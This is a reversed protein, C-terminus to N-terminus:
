ESSKKAEEWFIDLEEPTLERVTRAQDKVRSEVFRFRQVFKRNAKRLSEEPDIKLWRGVSVLVFFLDGLEEVLREHVERSGVAERLETLEEQVKDLLSGVDPWEFGQNAARKQVAFSYPLAPTALPITSLVSPREPMEEQKMAEWRELVAGSTALHVDGFVHPHRRILKETVASIVDTIDFEGAESAVQSHIMVQFLLDGLEGCLKEHDREDLAEVVEYAEELLYPRLSEHTQERDWPCGAPARLARTVSVLGAFTHVDAEPDLPPVFVATLHDFACRDLEHIPTRQISEEATGAARVVLVEHEDSWLRSLWLKVSAAIHTDHVQSILLPATPVAVRPTLIGAQGKIQGLPDQSCLLDLEMADILTLWSSDFADVGALVPELYSLGHVIRTTVREAQGLAAALRVTTEDVVPSGPVCYVIDRERVRDMLQAVIAAYVADFSYEREYVDDFSRFELRPLRARLADVTPHRETRVYVLDSAQLVELAELTLHAVSGPGLGVITLTHSETM